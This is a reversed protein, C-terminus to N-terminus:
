TEIIDIWNQPADPWIELYAENQAQIADIEFILNIEKNQFSNGIDNSFSVYDCISVTQGVELMNNFYYLNDIKTWNEDQNLICEILNDNNDYVVNNLSYKISFRLFVNALNNINTGARNRSNIINVNCPVIMSPLVIQSSDFNDYVCFDVEGLTITGSIQNSTSFFALSIILFVIILLFAVLSLIITKENSNVISKNRYINAM